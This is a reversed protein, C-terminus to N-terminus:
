NYLFITEIPNYISIFQELEDFSCPNKYNETEFEFINTKGTFIDINAMGVCIRADM